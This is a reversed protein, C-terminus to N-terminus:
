GMVQKHVDRLVSNPLRIGGVYHCGNKSVAVRGWNDWGDGIFVDYVNGHLYRFYYPM